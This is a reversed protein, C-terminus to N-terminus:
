YKGLHILPAQLISIVRKLKCNYNIKKWSSWPALKEGLNTKGRTRYFFFNFFSHLCSSSKFVSVQQGFATVGAVVGEGDRWCGPWQLKPVLSTYQYSFICGPQIASQQYQMAKVLWQSLFIVRLYNLQWDSPWIIWSTDLASFCTLDTHLSDIDLLSDSDCLKLPVSAVRSWNPKM